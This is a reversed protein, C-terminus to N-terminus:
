RAGPRQGQRKQAAAYGAAALRNRRRTVQSRELAVKPHRGIEEDTLAPDASLLDLIQRDTADLQQRRANELESLKTLQRRRESELQDLEARIADSQIRVESIQAELHGIQGVETGQMADTIAMLERVEKELARLDPGAIPVLMRRAALERELEAIREQTRQDFAAWDTHADAVLDRMEDLMTRSDGIAGQALDLVQEGARRLETLRRRLFTYMILAGCLETFVAILWAGTLQQAAPLHQVLRLMLWTAIATLLALGAVAAWDGVPLGLWRTTRLRSRLPHEALFLRATFPAPETSPAAEAADTPGEPPQKQGQTM